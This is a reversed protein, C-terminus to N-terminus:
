SFGAKVFKRLKEVYELAVHAKDASAWRGDAFDLFVFHIVPAPERNLGTKGAIPLDAASVFNM